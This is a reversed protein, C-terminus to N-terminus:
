DEGDNGEDPRTGFTITTINLGTMWAWWRGCTKCHYVATPPVYGANDYCELCNCGRSTPTGCHWCDGTDQIEGIPAERRGEAHEPHCGPFHEGFYWGLKAVVPDTCHGRQHRVLGDDIPCGCSAANM